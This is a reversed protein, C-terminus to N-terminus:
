SGSLFQAGPMEDGPCPGHTNVVLWDKTSDWSIVLRSVRAGKKKRKKKKKCSLCVGRRGVGAGDEQQRGLLRWVGHVAVGEVLVGAVAVDETHVGTAAKGLVDLIVLVVWARADMAHDKVWCLRVQVRGVQGGVLQPHVALPHALDLRGSFAVVASYLKHAAYIGGVMAIVRAPYGHMRRALVQIGEHLGAVAQALVDDVRLRVHGDVCVVGIGQDRRANLPVVAGSALAEVAAVHAREVAATAIEKGRRAGVAEVQGAVNRGKTQTVAAADLRLDAEVRRWCAAAVGIGHGRAVERVLPQGERVVLLAPHLHIAPLVLM